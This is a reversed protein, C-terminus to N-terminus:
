KQPEYQLHGDLEQLLCFMVRQVVLEPIALARMQTAVPRVWANMQLMHVVKETPIPNLDAAM